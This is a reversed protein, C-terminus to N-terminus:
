FRVSSLEAALESLTMIHIGYKQILWARNEKNFVSEGGEDATCLIDIQYAIHAAVTDGDAWERAAKEIERREAGDQAKSLARYWPGTL